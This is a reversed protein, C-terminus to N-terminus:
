EVLWAFHGGEAESLEWPKIMYLDIPFFSGTLRDKLEQEFKREGVTYILPLDLMDAIDAAFTDGKLIDDITTERGLHTTNIIGTVKQRSLTETQKLYAIVIDADKNEPRNRNIVFWFDHPTQDLQPKYYGLVRAGVPDGGLDVVSQLKTDVFISMIDPPLAPIDAKGQHSTVHVIIGERELERRREFSRFYPNVIDLDVLATKHGARVMALALNVAFETKGTGYHGSIITIAKDPLTM